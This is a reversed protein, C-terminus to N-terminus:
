LTRVHITEKIQNNQPSTNKPSEIENRLANYHQVLTPIRHSYQKCKWESSKWAKEGVSVLEALEIGSELFARVASSDSGKSSFMTKGTVRKYADRVTNLQQWVPLKCPVKQTGRKELISESWRVFSDKEDQNWLEFTVKQPYISLAERGAAVDAATPRPMKDKPDIEDREVHFPAPAKTDRKQTYFDSVPHGNYTWDGNGSFQGRRATAISAATPKGNSAARKLVEARQEPEVHTLERIGHDSVSEALKKTESDSIKDCNAVIEKRVEYAELVRYISNRDKGWRERCYDQFTDFNIRYLKKDRITTLADARDRLYKFGAAIIGELKTLEAQESLSLIETKM